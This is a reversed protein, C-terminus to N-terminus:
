LKKRMDEGGIVVGRAMEHLRSMIRKDLKHVLKSASLDSIFLTPLKEQYRKNVLTFVKERSWENLNEIGLDDIVLYAAESTEKLLQENDTAKLENLFIPLSIYKKKLLKYKYFTPKYILNLLSAIALHTKGTGIGGILLLSEGNNLVIDFNQTYKKITEYAARNEDTIKFKKFDKKEFRKSIYSKKLFDQYIHPCLFLYEKNDGPLKYFIRNKGKCLVCRNSNIEYKNNALNKVRSHFNKTQDIFDFISDPSKKFNLTFPENSIFYQKKYLNDIKAKNDTEELLRNYVQNKLKKRHALYKKRAKQNVPNTHKLLPNYGFDELSNDKMLYKYYLSINEFDKLRKTKNELM